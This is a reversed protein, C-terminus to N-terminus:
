KVGTLFRLDCTHYEVEGTPYWVRAFVTFPSHLSCRYLPEFCFWESRIVAAVLSNLSPILLLEDHHSSSVAADVPYAYYVLSDWSALLLCQGTYVVTIDNLQWLLLLFPRLILSCGLWCGVVHEVDRFTAVGVHLPPTHKLAKWFMVVTLPLLFEVLMHCNWQVISSKHVNQM